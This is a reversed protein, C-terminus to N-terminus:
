LFLHIIKFSTLKKKYIKNTMKISSNNMSNNNNHGGGREADIFNSVTITFHPGASLKNGSAGQVCRSADPYGDHRSPRLTLEEDPSQAFICSM